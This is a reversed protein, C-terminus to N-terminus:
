SKGANTAALAAEIAPALAPGRPSVAIVKGTADLLFSAPISHIGYKVALEDNWGKGDCFQRWPMKNQQLFAPLTAQGSAEDLSVGVIDFGRSHYKNYAAIVNPMEAMCPGCWTAWFDVLVVKGRYQALSLPKGDIGKVEGSPLAFEPFTKGVELDKQAQITAVQSKVQAELQPMMRSIEKGVQTDPYAAAIHKYGALAKEPENFFQTYLVYKMYEATAMTDTKESQHAAILADFTALESAFDSEKRQGQQLKANIKAVIAQVQANLAASSAASVPAAPKTVPAPAAAESAVALTAVTLGVTLILGSILKNKM